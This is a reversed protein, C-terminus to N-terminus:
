GARMNRVRLEMYESREEINDVSLVEYTDSGKTVTYTSDVGSRYRILVTAPADVQAIQAEMIERGHANQWRSWVTAITSGAPVMFGGADEVVSRSKLVIQTRMEGPNTIKSGIKM